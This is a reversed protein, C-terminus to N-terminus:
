FFVPMAHPTTSGRLFPFPKEAKDIMQKGTRDFYYAKAYLTEARIREGTKVTVKLYPDFPLSITKGPKLMRKFIDEGGLPPNDVFKVSLIKFIDHTQSMGHFAISLVLFILALRKNTFRNM